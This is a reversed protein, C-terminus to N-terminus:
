EQRHSHGSVKPWSNVERTLGVDHMKVQAEGIVVELELNSYPGIMSASHRQLYQLHSIVISIRIGAYLILCM